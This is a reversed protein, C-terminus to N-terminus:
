RRSAAVAVSLGTITLNYFVKRVPTSLAWGFLLGVQYM